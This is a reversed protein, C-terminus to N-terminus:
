GRRNRQIVPSGNEFEVICEQIAPKHAEDDGEFFEPSGFVCAQVDLPTFFPRSKQVQGPSVVALQIFCGGQL